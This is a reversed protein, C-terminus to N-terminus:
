YEQLFSWLEEIKEKTVERAWVSGREIQGIDNNGTPSENRISDVLRDSFVLLNLM